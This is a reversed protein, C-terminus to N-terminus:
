VTSQDIQQRSQQCNACGCGNAHIKLPDFQDTQMSALVTPTGAQHNTKTEAPSAMAPIAMMLAASALLTTSPKM